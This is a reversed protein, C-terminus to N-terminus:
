ARSDHLSLGALVADSDKQGWHYGADVSLSRAYEAEGRAAGVHGLSRSAIALGVRADIEALRYDGQLAFDRAETLNAIAEEASAPDRTQWRGRAVLAQILFIRRTGSRALRLADELHLGAQVNNQADVAIEGLIRHFLGEEEPWPKERCIILNAEAIQRALDLDGLRRLHQAHFAGSLKPMYPHAPDLDRHQVWARRFADGAKETEGRLHAVWGVWALAAVQEEREPTHLLIEFAESASDAAKSLEGLHAQLETLNILAIGRSVILDSDERAIERSRSYLAEAEHLRGLNM